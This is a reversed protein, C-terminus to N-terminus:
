RPREEGQKRLRLFVLLARWEEGHVAGTLVALAVLVANAIVWLFPLPATWLLWCVAVVPAGVLLL